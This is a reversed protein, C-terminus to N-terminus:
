WLFRRGGLFVPAASFDPDLLLNWSRFAYDDITEILRGDRM